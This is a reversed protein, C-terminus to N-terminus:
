FFVVIETARLSFFFLSLLSHKLIKMMIKREYDKRKEEFNMPWGTIRRNLKKKGRNHDKKYILLQDTWQVYFYGLIKKM